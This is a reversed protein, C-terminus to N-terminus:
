DLALMLRRRIGVVAGGTGGRLATGFAAMIAPVSVCRREVGHAGCPLTEGRDVCRQGGMHGVRLLAGERGM